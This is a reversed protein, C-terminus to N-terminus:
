SNQLAAAIQGTDFLKGYYKIYLRAPTCQSVELNATQM